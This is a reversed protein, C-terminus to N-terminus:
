EGLAEEDVEYTETDVEAEPEPEVPKTNHAALGAGGVGLVAAALYLVMESAGPILVGSLILVPILAQIISYIWKRHTPDKFWEIM